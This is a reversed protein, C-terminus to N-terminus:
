VDLGCVLPGGLKTDAQSPEGALIELAQAQIAVGVAGGVTVEDVTLVDVELAAAVAVQSAVEFQGPHSPM